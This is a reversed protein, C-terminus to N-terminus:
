AKIKTKKDAKPGFTKDIFEENAAMANWIEGKESEPMERILCLKLMKDVYTFFYYRGKYAIRHTYQEECIYDKLGRKAEAALNKARSIVFDYGEEAKKLNAKANTLALEAESLQKEYIPVLNEMVDTCEDRAEKKETADMHRPVTVGRGIATLNSGIFKGAEEPTEFEGLSFPVNSGDSAVNFEIFNPRYDEKM